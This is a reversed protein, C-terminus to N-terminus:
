AGGAHYAYTGIRFGQHCFNRRFLLNFHLQLQHSLAVINNMTANENQVLCKM